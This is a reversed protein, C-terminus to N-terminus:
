VTFKKVDNAMQMYKIFKYFFNFVDYFHLLEQLHM